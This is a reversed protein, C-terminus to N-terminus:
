FSYKLKMFLRDNDQWSDFPVVDSGVFYLLGGGITLADMLDYDVSLRITSGVFGPDALLVLALATLHLRDNMLDSGIRLAIEVNHQYVYNPLYKLLEDYDFVHRHALELAVNLDAFGYYEVGIMYDLRSKRLAAADYPFCAPCAPSWDPVLVVYDLGHIYALEAKLLWSGLTYNAGTGVHTVRDDDRLIPQTTFTPLSIVSTTRNQYVRAVYFSIDWGSFIGNISGAFEPTAGWQSVSRDPAESAFSVISQSLAGYFGQLIALVQDPPLGALQDLPIPNPLDDPGFSISPFFDSGPPPDWDYRIEPIVIASFSWQRWYVDARLMTTPLRLNEIDALGPELTDLPNLIDNVRLTDSRGWNVVQRGLKLDLFSTVSGQLWLDLVQHQWEYDRLVEDTYKSKGHIAFAYDYAVYGQARLKWDLPLAVDLTLDGRLRLRQLNGFYTGNQERPDPGVSAFHPRVNYSAGLSTSGRLDWFREESDSVDADTNSAAADDVDSAEDEFGGLVDDVDSAEDEFGGLVDEVSSEPEAQAVTVAIAALLAVALM